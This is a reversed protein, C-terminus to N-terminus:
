KVPYAVLEGELMQPVVLLKKSPAHELDASGAPLDLLIKSAGKGDIQFLTGAIWDTVFYGGSGDPEIGDLNGLPKGEGFSRVTREGLTVTKIHGPTETNFSADPRGWGAVVLREGEALLGNPCELEESRVFEELKGDAFRLIRNALL